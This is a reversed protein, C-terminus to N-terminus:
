IYVATINLLFAAGRKFLATISHITWIQPWRQTSFIRRALKVLPHVVAAFCEKLFRSGLNDPGTASEISLDRLVRIAMRVRIPLFGTRIHEAATWTYANTTAEPLVYRSGLVDALLEAKGSATREWSGDDRKLAPIGSIGNNRHM